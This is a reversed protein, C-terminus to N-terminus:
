VDFYSKSYFMYISFRRMITCVHNYQTTFIFFSFFFRKAKWVEFFTCSQRIIMYRTACDRVMDAWLPAIDTSFSNVFTCVGAVIFSDLVFVCCFCFDWRRGQKGGEAGVPLWPVRRRGSVCFVDVVHKLIVSVSPRLNAGAEGRIRYRGKLGARRTEGHQQGHQQQGHNTTWSKNDMNDHKEKYTSAKGTGKTKKKSNRKNKIADKRTKPNWKSRTNSHSTNTNCDTLIM